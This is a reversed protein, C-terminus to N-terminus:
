RNSLWENIRARFFKWPKGGGTGPVICSAPIRRDRAMQAIWTTSCGLQKALDPSDIIQSPPPDLCNAIRAASFSIASLEALIASLIAALHEIANAVTAQPEVQSGENESHNPTPAVVTPVAAGGHNLTGVKGRAPHMLPSLIHAEASLHAQHDQNRKQQPGGQLRERCKLSKVDRTLFPFHEM